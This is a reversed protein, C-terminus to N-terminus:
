KINNRVKKKNEHYQNKQIFVTSTCFTWSESNTKNKRTQNFMKLFFVIDVINYVEWQIMLVCVMDTGWNSTIKLKKTQNLYGESREM